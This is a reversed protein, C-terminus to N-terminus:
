EDSCYKELCILLDSASQKRSPLEVRKLKDGDFVLSGTFVLLDRVSRKLGFSEFRSDVLAHRCFHALLSHALDVLFV